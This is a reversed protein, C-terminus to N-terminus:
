YINKWEVDSNSFEIIEIVCTQKVCESGGWDEGYSVSMRYNPTTIVYGKKTIEKSYGKEILLSDAEKNIDLQNKYTIFLGYPDDLDNEERIGIKTSIEDIIRDKENFFSNIIRYFLEGDNYNEFELNGEISITKIKITKMITNKLNKNGKTSVFILLIKIRQVM